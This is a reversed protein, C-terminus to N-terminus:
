KKFYLVSEPIVQKEIGPGKYEVHLADGGGAQFYAVRIPHYGKALAILGEKVVQGHEYNNDVVLSDGIYLQSGDDSNTYFTYIGDRPVYIFATYDIGFNNLARREPLVMEPLVAEREPTLGGFDPVSSWKGLYYKYRVGNSADEIAVGPQGPVKTITVTTAESVPQGNLFYRASITTTESIKIPRSYVPSDNTVEAGDVSYRTVLKGSSSITVEASHM